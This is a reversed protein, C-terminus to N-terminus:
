YLASCSGAAESDGSLPEGAEEDVVHWSLGVFTEADLQGQRELSVLHHGRRTVADM